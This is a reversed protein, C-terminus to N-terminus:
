LQPWNTPNILLGDESSHFTPPDIAMGLSAEMIADLQDTSELGVIVKDVFKLGKVYGICAELPSLGTEYLWSDWLDFTHLWRGFKKPRDNPAMLLLGQLFVSRAHVEINLRVLTKSVDSLAMRRDFVNIPLQVIDVDFDRIIKELENVCYVSVGIKEVVGQKRLKTLSGWIQSGQNSLLQSPVHLLLGYFSDCKLNRMANFVCNVVFDEASVGPPIEGIKTILKLGEFKLNGLVSEANGYAAATDITDIGASVARSIIESAEKEGVKGWSNAIGYKM